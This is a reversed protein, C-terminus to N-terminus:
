VGVNRIPMEFQEIGFQLACLHYARLTLRPITFSGLKTIFTAM